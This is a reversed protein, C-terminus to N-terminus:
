RLGTLQLPTWTGLAYRAQLNRIDQCGVFEDEVMLGESM